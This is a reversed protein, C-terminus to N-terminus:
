LQIIVEGLVEMKGMLEQFQKQTKSLSLSASVNRWEKELDKKLAKNDLSKTKKLISDYVPLKAEFHWATLIAFGGKTKAKETIEKAGKKRTELFETINEKERNSKYDQFSM